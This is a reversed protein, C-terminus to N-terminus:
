GGVGEVRRRVLDALADAREMPINHDSDPIAVFAADPFKAALKAYYATAPEVNLPFPSLAGACVTTPCGIKGLRSIAGTDGCSRFIAAEDERACRLAFSGDRREVACGDVYDEVVDAPWRRGVGRAISAVCAARDPWADRRKATSNAVPTGAAAVVPKTWWPLLVPEALVLAAFTGPRKLEALVLSAGGLSHGVGVVPGAPAADDLVELLAAPCEAAWDGEVPRLWVSGSRHPSPAFGRRSEGQWPLDCGVGHYDADELRRQVPHWIEKALGTGHAFLV